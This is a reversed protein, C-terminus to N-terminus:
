YPIFSEEEVRIHKSFVKGTCIGNNDGRMSIIIVTMIYTMSITMVLQKEKFPIATPRGTVRGGGRAPGQTRNERM